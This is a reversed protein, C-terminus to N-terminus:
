AGRGMRLFLLLGGAVFGWFLCAFFLSVGPDNLFDQTEPSM